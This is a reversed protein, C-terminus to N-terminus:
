MDSYFGPDMTEKELAEAEKSLSDVDLAKGLEEIDSLMANLALKYQEYEVLSFVVM